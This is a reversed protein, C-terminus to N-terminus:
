SDNVNEEDHAMHFATNRTPNGRFIKRITLGIVRIYNLLDPDRLYKQNLELKAPMIEEIYTKEPDSSRGLIEGEDIYELSAFDTLGPRHLLVKLQEESYLKVYKRLEPRPGVLSMDGKLVNILQPLEDLKMKRLFVGTRTIRRDKNGLTLGGQKDAGTQMTRFKILLFDRNNKGVRSQRYFIGGRSDVAVAIAILILFPFLLILGLMSFLLDFFRIM